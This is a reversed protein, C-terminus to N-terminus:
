ARFRFTMVAKLLASEAAHQRDICDQMTDYPRYAYAMRRIRPMFYARIRQWAKSADRKVKLKWKEPVIPLDEMRWRKYKEDYEDPNLQELIHGFCWTVIDEGGNLSIYGAEKKGHGIGQALAQGLSPKEAVFLRLKREGKM